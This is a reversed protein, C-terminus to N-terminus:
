IWNILDHEFFIMTSRDKKPTVRKQNPNTPFTITFNFTTTPSRYCYQGLIQIWKPHGFVWRTQDIANRKCDSSIKFIKRLGLFVAQVCRKFFIKSPCVWKIVMRGSIAAVICIKCIFLRVTVRQACGNWGRSKFRWLLSLPWWRRSQSKPSAHKCSISPHVIGSVKKKSYLWGRKTALYAPYGGNPKPQHILRGNSFIM